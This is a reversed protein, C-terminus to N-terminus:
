HKTPKIKYIREANKHFLKHQEHESLSSFHRRVKALWTPLDKSLNCVPWDSGIMVRDCGFHELTADLWPNLRNVGTNKPLSAIVGSIKCVVNPLMSISKLSNYWITFNEQDLTPGGCHNLVFQIESCSKILDYIVEHQSQNVCLDFPLNHKTLSQINKRFLHSKSLEDPSTHLVRRLGCIEDTLSEELLQNFNESEPRCAAIVGALKNSKDKALESFFKAETSIQNKQVDVEMFIAGAISQDKTLEEYDEMTFDAQLSPFDACWEYNFYKQYLLHLHTDLIPIM